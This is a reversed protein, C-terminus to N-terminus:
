RWSACECNVACMGATCLQAGVGGWEGLWGMAALFVRRVTQGYVSCTCVSRGLGGVVEALNM